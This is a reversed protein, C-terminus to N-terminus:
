GGAQGLHNEQTRVIHIAWRLRTIKITTVLHIDDYLCYLEENYRSRWTAEGCIVVTLMINNFVSIEMEDCTVTM